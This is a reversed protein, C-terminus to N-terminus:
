LATSTACQPPHHPVGARHHHERPMVLARRAHTHADHPRTHTHSPVPVRSCTNVDRAPAHRARVPHSPCPGHGQRPEIAPVYLYPSLDAITSVSPEVFAQLARTPLRVQARHRRYHPTVTAAAYSVVITTVTSQYEGPGEATARSPPALEPLQAQWEPGIHKRGRGRKREPAM